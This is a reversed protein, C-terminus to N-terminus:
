PAQVVQVVIGPMAVAIATVSARRHMLTGCTECIARLNGSRETVPLFDVMAGAPSRPERCRLCYFRGPGCPVKRSVNQKKLFDRIAGGQFLIPRGDDIPTLGSRQWNRVTNKHVGLRDSLEGISYCRHTKIVNPNIRRASM